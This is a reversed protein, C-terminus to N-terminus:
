FVTVEGWIQDINVAKCAISRHIGDSSVYYDGDLEIYKPSQKYRVDFKGSLLRDLASHLRSPELREKQPNHEDPKPSGSVGVIDDPDVWKETDEPNVPEYVDYERQENIDKISISDWPRVRNIDQPKTVKGNDLRDKLQEARGRQTATLEITGM